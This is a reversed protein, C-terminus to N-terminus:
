GSTAPANRRDTRRQDQFLFVAVLCSSWAVGALVTFAGHWGHSASLRAIAGGGLAGGLYGFGDILGSATASGQKGGFDLAIAGALFSYPGILLFAVASVIVVPWLTSGGFDTQGLLALAAGTLFLGGCIIAARGARGLMDGLYGAMLVSVGGVLPFLASRSAAAAHTLGVGETFYTPTWTNFTERLLTLGFSLLCVTLFGPSALLPIFRGRSGSPPDVAGGFVNRPDAELEELGVRAPSDKLLWLCGAFLALLTVAAAVFVGRWGLGRAFLAGM